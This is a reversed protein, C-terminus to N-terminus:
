FQLMVGISGGITSNKTNIYYSPYYFRGFYFLHGKTFKNNATNEIGFGLGIRGGKKSANDYIKYIINVGPGFTFNINNIKLFTRFLDINLSFKSHDNESIFGAGLEFFLSSKIDKRYTIIPILELQGKEGIENLQFGLTQSFVKGQVPLTTQSLKKKVEEIEDNGKITKTKNNIFVFEGEQSTMRGYQPTQQNESDITVKESLFMGLENATIYGDSNLDARGGQLGRKLNLTFASHGWESKEIVQEGKGGATIIQRGQDSVIKEIYNLSNTSLSRSGVAAIGGYCADVLYLMHKAKSMLALRKLEDMAISSYYLNDADGNVPILYGMQGGEPLEMTEGHGAFFILVRDSEQAKFAINSFEKIINDKSAKEDLLLTINESSFNFSEILMEQMALADDAAYALKQVNEYKDIGIILAYSNDYIDDTTISFGFTFLLISLLKNM